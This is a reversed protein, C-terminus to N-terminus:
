SHQCRLIRLVEGIVLYVKQMKSPGAKVISTLVRRLINPNQRNKETETNIKRTRAKLEAKYKKPKFYVLIRTQEVNRHFDSKVGGEGM